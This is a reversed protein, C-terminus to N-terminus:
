EENESGGGKESSEFINKAEGLKEEIETEEYFSRLYERLTPRLFDDFIKGKNISSNKRINEKQFHMFFAHGFEYARGLKLSSEDKTLRVENKDDVKIGSIYENLKKCSDVYDTIKDEDYGAECMANGIVEYDCNMLIWKFRRRLALDFSDISKDVDNMMGIIYVNKPVGFKAEDNQFDYATKETDLAANQLTILNRNEANEVDDRYDKEICSLTEGFVSSLNARNIEDIVFYFKENPNEKAKKCFNKFHGNVLELKLTGNEAIGSPKIGDIFDEYSYSSHFQIRKYHNEDSILDLTKKVLYTKGTGPAGYYIVNPNDDDPFDILDYVYFDWLADSIMKYFVAEDEQIDNEEEKIIKNAESLVKESKQFFGLKKEVGFSEALSNIAREDYITPLSFDNKYYNNTVVLKRLFNQASFKRENVKEDLEKATKSELCEKFFKKYSKFNKELTKKEEEIKNDPIAAKKSGAYKKAEDEPIDYLNLLDMGNTKSDLGFLWSIMPMRISGFDKDAFVQYVLSDESIEKLQYYEEKALSEDLLKPLYKNWVNGQWKGIESKQQEYNKKNKIKQWCYLFCKKNSSFEKTQKAM